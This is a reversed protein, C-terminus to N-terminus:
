FARIKGVPGVGSLTFSVFMERNDPRERYTLTVSWCQHRYELAYYSELFAQRDFSYRSTYQFVFPKVLSIGVKGELYEVQERAFRYAVGASNGSGDSLDLNLSSTSSRGQYPNFRADAALSFRALPTVRGEVIVDTFPRREDVLTLLDRRSERIDYGQSIALYLIDRYVPTDDGHRFKASVYNRLSYYVINQAVIRDNFDFFPLGEQNKEPVYRYSVEPVLLHRVRRLDGREVEYVRSLSTSLRAGLDPLLDGHYGDTTGGEYAHYLRARYGGSLSADLDGLSNNLTLMPHLNLRVGKGGEERYFNDFTADLSPYLPTKGLRRRIGAFTVSPLRQLTARNNSAELDHFYDLEGTLVSLRWKKTLSVRSDLTKRNYEGTAEAYDRYFDRDTALNVDSKFDLGPAIAEQHRQALDGRLKERLTDYILYGRFSGESGRRRIYRYDVAGGAGRRSQLDLYFTADQSPSVAWYYAVNLSLGKKSSSGARPTLFGSQRERKVPFLVYPLYFVPVDKIYFVANRGTAYDELTVDLDTATFKWSPLDDDCTTFTGRRLSYSDEGTKEMEEGLLHLNGKKVFLNGRKVKGTEAGLDLTVMDGRLIDDGKLIAVNGEAEALNGAERLLARDAFLTMGDREIRVNGEAHYTGTEKEHTVADASIAVAGPTPADAGAAKGTSACVLAALLILIKAAPRMM